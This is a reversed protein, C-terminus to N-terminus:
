VPALDPGSRTRLGSGKGAARAAERAPAISRAREGPVCTDPRPATLLITRPHPCASVGAARAAPSPSPGPGRPETKLAAARRMRLSRHRGASLRSGRGADQHSPATGSSGDASQAGVRSRLPQVGGHAPRPDGAAPPRPTEQSTAGSELRRGRREYILSRRATESACTSSPTPPNYPFSPELTPAAPVRGRRPLPLPHCGANETPQPPSPVM